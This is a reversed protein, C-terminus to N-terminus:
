GLHSVHFALPMPSNARYHEDQPILREATGLGAGGYEKPWHPAAWGRENLIRQWRVTDQARSPHGRHMRERIYAPLREKIFAPVEERFGAQEPTLQLDM